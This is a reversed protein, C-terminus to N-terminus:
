TVDIIKQVVPSGYQVGGVSVNLNKTIQLDCKSHTHGALVTFDVNPNARAASRIMDGMMKSSFWPLAFADSPGNNYLCADVFPPVHTAIIIKKHYRLAAKIGTFVHEVAEQALLQSYEVIMKEDHLQMRLAHKGGGNACYEDILYWDTMLFMKKHRDGNLGDYWGDHGVLATTDSLQIYSSQSLYKLYPSISMIESMQKRVGSISGKYYDHNGLVFYIPMQLGEEIMALHSGISKADSIDGTIVLGDPNKQKVNNIFKITSDITTHDLHCDTVWALKM